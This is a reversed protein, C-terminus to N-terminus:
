GPSTTERASKEAAARLYQAHLCAVAAALSDLGDDNAVVDHALALRQARTAQAALIREVQERTLNSRRMTREIQVAEPCDVVLIRDAMARYADGTEVLLPVVVVVYPATAAAVQRRAEARIRPHLLEELATRAKPDEFALARMRTRDLSGDAAAIDAGFRAILEPMAAGGQGTLARAIVDTDVVAAGRTQLLDSVATKGSGIGGTLVVVYAV